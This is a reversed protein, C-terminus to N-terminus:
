EFHQPRFGPPTAMAVLEVNDDANLAQITAGTGRGGCGVVAIKLKKNDLVNYMAKM